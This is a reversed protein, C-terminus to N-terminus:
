KQKTLEIIQNHGEGLFERCKMTYYFAFANKDSSRIQKEKQLMWLFNKFHSWIPWECLPQYKSIAMHCSKQTDLRTIISFRILQNLTM